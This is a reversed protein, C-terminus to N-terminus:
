VQKFTGSYAVLKNELDFVNVKMIDMKGLNASRAVFNRMTASAM